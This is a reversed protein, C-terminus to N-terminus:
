ESTTTHWNSSEERANHSSEYSPLEEAAKASKAGFGNDVTLNLVPSVHRQPQVELIRGIRISSEELQGVFAAVFGQNEM